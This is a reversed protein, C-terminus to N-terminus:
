AKSGSSGVLAAGTILVLVVGGSLFGVARGFGPSKGEDVIVFNESLNADLNKLQSREDDDLDVGYRVLGSVNRTPFMKDGNEVAFKMMETEDEIKILQNAIGLLDPDKTAVLVHIPTGDGDENEGRAPIFLETVSGGTETYSAELLNLSCGTLELWEQSPRVEGYNQCAVQFPERNKVATYLGQGGTWLLYLGVLAAICGLRM